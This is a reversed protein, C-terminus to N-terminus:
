QIHEHQAIERLQRRQEASLDFYESNHKGTDKNEVILVSADESLLVTHWANRKVNYVTGALMPHAEIEQVQPGNGGLLLVGQGRTLVFVEDTATHREMSDNREPRVAELFNLIAVRWEGYDVLPMYGEGKYERIELLDENM